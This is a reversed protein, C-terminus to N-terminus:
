HGPRALPMASGGRWNSPTEPEAAGEPLHGMNRLSGSRGALGDVLDASPPCEKLADVVANWHGMQIISISSAGRAPQGLWVQASCWTDAKPGVQEIARQLLAYGQVWRVRVLWWPALALALRLASLPDHDLAWALGQHM